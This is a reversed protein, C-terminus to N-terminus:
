KTTYYLAYLGHGMTNGSFDAGSKLFQLGGLLIRGKIQMKVLLREM